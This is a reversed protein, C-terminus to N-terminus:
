SSLLKDLVYHCPPETTASSCVLRFLGADFADLDKLFAADRVYMTLDGRAEPAYYHELDWRQHPVSSPMDHEQQLGQWFGTIGEGHGSYRGSLGLLLTAQKQGVPETM